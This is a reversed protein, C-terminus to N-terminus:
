CKVYITASPQLCCFIFPTSNGKNKLTERTTALRAHIGTSPLLASVGEALVCFYELVGGKREAVRQYGLQAAHTEGSRTQPPADGM